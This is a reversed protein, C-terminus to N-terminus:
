PAPSCCFGQFSACLVDRGVVPRFVTLSRRCWGLSMNSDGYQTAPLSKVYLLYWYTRDPLFRDTVVCGLVVQGSGRALDALDADGLLDESPLISCLAATPGCRM